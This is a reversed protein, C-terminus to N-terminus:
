SSPRCVLTGDENDIAASDPCQALDLSTDECDFDGPDFRCLEPDVFAPGCRCSLICGTVQCAGCSDQYSGIPVQNPPYFGCDPVTSSSTSSTTAV